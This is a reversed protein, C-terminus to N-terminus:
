ARPQAPPPPTITVAEEYAQYTQDMVHGKTRTELRRIRGTAHDVWLRYWAPYHPQVFALVTTDAGTGTAARSWLGLTTARDATRDRVAAHATTPEAGVPAATRHGHGDEAPAIVM